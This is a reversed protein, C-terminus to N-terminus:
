CFLICKYNRSFKTNRYKNIRSCYNFSQGIKKVSDPIVVETMQGQNHFAHTEIKEVSEDIEFKGNIAYLVNVLTKKDKSYLINNEIIYSNNSSDITVKGIYNVYKFLPHIYSVNSGIKIEQINGCNTFSSANITTLLDPLIITKANEAQNFSYQALVSIGETDKLDITEEKSTEAELKEKIETAIIQPAKKLEKALKFCPFSYDGNKTDKPTEIYQELEKEDIKIIDSIQKAIIQKFNKMKM